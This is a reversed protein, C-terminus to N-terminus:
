EHREERREALTSRLYTLVLRDLHGDLVERVDPLELGTRPDEVGRLEDTLTYLRVVEDIQREDDLELATSWSCERRQREKRAQELLQNFWAPPSLGPEGPLVAVRVLRSMSAAPDGEHLAGRFRHLGQEGRLFGLVNSAEVFCVLRKLSRLQKVAALTEPVRESPFLRLEPEEEPKEPFRILGFEFTYGKRHFWRAYQIVLTRLWAAAGLNAGQGGLRQFVLIAHDGEGESVTALELDLFDFALRLQEFKDVLEAFPRQDRERVLEEAMEEMFEADEVLQRHRQLLRDLHHARRLRARIEPEAQQYFRDDAAEQLAEQLDRRLAAMTESHGWLHLKRRIDSIQEQLEGITLRREHGTIVRDLEVRDLRIRRRAENIEAANLRTRDGDREVRLLMPSASGRTALYRALPRAVLDEVARKLPRAGYAPDFGRELLLDIVREDVEVSAQSRRLGDRALLQDLERRAIRAMAERSLPGYTVIRDLRNVFEPRFFKEVARLYHTEADTPGQDEGFGLAGRTRDQAGLNSTLVFVCNRCDVTVGAGTTVRGEGLVQLLVDFIGPDAKEIEDLLVVRFPQEIVPAALSGPQGTAPNGLFRDVAGFGSYESMDLRVLRDVTGFLYEALCQALFTKGTGTPGILLLAALPRNPDGIGAKATVVVDIATELAQPQGVLRDAFFREVEVLDLKRTEDLLVLPLGTQLAMQAAIDRRRIREQAALRIATRQLLGVTQGPFALYPLFRRTLQQAYAVADPDFAVRHELELNRRVRTLIAPRAAPEPEDLRITKFLGLFGAGPASHAALREPTSEGIVVLDGHNIFDALFAAVEGARTFSTAGELLDTIRPLHLVHNERRCEDVINTWAAEWWTPLAEVRQASLRWLARKHLAAACEKRALRRAIEDVVATKGVGSPGVLLLSQRRSSALTELLEDVVADRGFARQLGTSALRQTLNEGAQALAWHNGEEAERDRDEPSPPTAELDAREIWEKGAWAHSLVEGTSREHFYANLEERTASTLQDRSRLHFTLELKPLRVVLAGTDESLLALFKMPLREKRSRRRADYSTVETEVIEAEYRCGALWRSVESRDAKRIRRAMARRIEEQCRGLNVGHSVVEPAEVLSVTYAGGPHKQVYFTFPFKM